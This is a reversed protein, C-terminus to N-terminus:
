YNDILLFIAGIVFLLCIFSYICKQSINLVYGDIACDLIFWAIGGVSLLNVSNTVKRSKFIYDFKKSCLIVLFLAVSIIAYAMNVVTMNPSIFWNEIIFKIFTLVVIIAGVGTVKTFYFDVEGQQKRQKHKLNRNARNSM